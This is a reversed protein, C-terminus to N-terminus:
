GGRGHTSGCSTAAPLAVLLEGGDPRFRVSRPESPVAIPDGVRAGGTWLSITGAKGTPKNQEAMRAAGTLQPTSAVAILGGDASVDADLVLGGPDLAPGVPAGTAPDFPQVSRLSAAFFFAGGTAVALRSDRSVRCFSVGGGHRVVPDAWCRPVAWVRVVGNNEATAIRTTDASCALASVASAHGLPDAAVTLDAASFLRV